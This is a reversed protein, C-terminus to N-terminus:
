WNQSIPLPYRNFHLFFSLYCKFICVLLFLLLSQFLILVTGQGEMTKLYQNNQWKDAVDECLTLFFKLGLAGDLSIEQLMLQVSKSRVHSAKRLQCTGQFLVSIFNAIM